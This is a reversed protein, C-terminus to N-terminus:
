TTMKRFPHHAEECGHGSRPDGPHMAAINSQMEKHFYPPTETISPALNPVSALALTQKKVDDYLKKWRDAREGLDYELVDIRTDVQYSLKFLIAELVALKAFLWAKKGEKIGDLVAEYEEDALACTDAGGEVQTDGLEFRMQDKGRQRIKTPDYSYNM